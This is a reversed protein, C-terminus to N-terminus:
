LEGILEFQKYFADASIIIYSDEGIDLAYALPDLIGYDIFVFDYSVELISTNENKPYLPIATLLKATKPSIAVFTRM